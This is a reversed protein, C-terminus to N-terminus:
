LQFIINDQFKEKGRSLKIILICKDFRLLHSVQEERLDASIQQAPDPRSFFQPDPQLVRISWIKYLTPFLFWFNFCKDQTLNPSWIRWTFPTLM